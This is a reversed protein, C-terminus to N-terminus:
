TDWDLAGGLGQIDAEMGGGWFFGGFITLVFLFNM